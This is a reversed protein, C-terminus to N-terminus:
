RKITELFTLTVLIPLLRNWNFNLNYCTLAETKPHRGFKSSSKGLGTDLSKGLGQENVGMELLYSNNSLRLLASCLPSLLVSLPRM